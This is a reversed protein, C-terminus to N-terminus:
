SVKNLATYGEFRNLWLARMYISGPAGRTDQLQRLRNKTAIRDEDRTEVMSQISKYGARFNLKPQAEELEIDSSNFDDGM